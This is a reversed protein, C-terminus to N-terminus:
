LDGGAITGAGGSQSNDNRRRLPRQNPMPGLSLMPRVLRAKLRYMALDAAKLLEDSARGDHPYMAQGISASLRQETGKIWCPLSNRERIAAAVTTV